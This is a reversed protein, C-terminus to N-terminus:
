WCASCRRWASRAPISAAKAGAGPHRVAARCEGRVADARRAGPRARHRPRRHDPDARSLRCLRLRRFRRPEQLHRHRRAQRRSLRAGCQRRRRRRGGAGDARGADPVALLARHQLVARTGCQQAHPDVLRGAPFGQGGSGPHGQAAGRRRRRAAPDQLCKRGPQGAPGARDRGPRRDLDDAAARLRFRRVRCGARHGAQRATRLHRQRAEAPRRAQSQLREFLLDPAAAGFVGSRSASCIRSRCRRSPRWRAMSRIPTTSRRSRSWRRTPATTAAAGDLAHQRHAFRRGPRRPLRARGPTAERQNIQFRLDGGLLTQGQNAVGATISRAVSNVGGIAAVGLAICALFILFGSLGGRMERLSFRVALKLTQALPM